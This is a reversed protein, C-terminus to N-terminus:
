ELCKEYATTFKQNIGNIPWVNRLTDFYKATTTDNEDLLKIEVEQVNQHHKLIFDKEYSGLSIMVVNGRM